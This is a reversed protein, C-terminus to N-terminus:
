PCGHFLDAHATCTTGDHLIHVVGVDHRLLTQAILQHRHSGQPEAPGGLLCTRREGAISLLEDIGQRYRAENEKALYDVRGDETLPGLRSGLWAYELGTRRALHELQDRNFWPAAPSYPFSRVDVLVEVQHPGLLSALGDWSMEGHGITYVTYCAM